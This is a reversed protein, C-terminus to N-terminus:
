KKEVVVGTQLLRGLVLGIAMWVGDLTIMCEVWLASRSRGPRGAATHWPWTTGWSAVWGSKDMPWSQSALQWTAKVAVVTVMLWSLATM